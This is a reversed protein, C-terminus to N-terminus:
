LINFRLHKTGKQSNGHSQANSITRSRTGKKDEFYEGFSVPRFLGTKLNDTLFLWKQGDFRGTPNLLM